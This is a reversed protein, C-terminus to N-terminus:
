IKLAQTLFTSCVASVAPSRPCHAWREPLGECRGFTAVTWLVSWRFSGQVALADMSVRPTVAACHLKQLQM